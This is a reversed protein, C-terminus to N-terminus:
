SPCALLLHPRGFPDGAFPHAQEKNLVLSGFTSFLETFPLWKFSNIARTTGFPFGSYRTQGHETAKQEGALLKVRPPKISFGNTPLFHNLGLMWAFHVLTM